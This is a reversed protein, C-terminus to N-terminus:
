LRDWLTPKPNPPAEDAYQEALALGDDVHEADRYIFAADVKRQDKRGAVARKGYSVVFPRKSYGFASRMLDHKSYGHHLRALCKELRPGNLEKTNPACIGRWYELVEMATTYQPDATVDRRQEGRQRRLGVRASAIEATLDGIWAIAADNVTGCASCAIVTQPLSGNHDSM